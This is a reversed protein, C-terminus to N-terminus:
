TNKRLAAAAMSRTMIPSRRPAPQEDDNLSIPSDPPTHIIIAPDSSTYSTMAPLWDTVDTEKKVKVEWNEHLFKTKFIKM